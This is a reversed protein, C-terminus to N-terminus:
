SSTDSIVSMTARAGAAPYDSPDCGDAGGQPDSRSAAPAPGRFQIQRLTLGVPESSDGAEPRTRPRPGPRSPGTLKPRRRSGFILLGVVPLALLEPVALSLM